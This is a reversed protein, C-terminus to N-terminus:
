QNQLIEPNILPVNRRINPYVREEISMPIPFGLSDPVKIAIEAMCYLVIGQAVLDLLTESEEAREHSKYLAEALKYAVGVGPLERLPHEPPLLSAARLVLDHRHPGDATFGNRQDRERTARLRKLYQRVLESEDAEGGLWAEWRYHLSIVPFTAGRLHEYLEDPCQDSYSANSDPGIAIMLDCTPTGCNDCGIAERESRPLAVWPFRPDLPEWLPLGETGPYAGPHAWFEASTTFGVKVPAPCMQLTEPERNECSWSLVAAAATIMTCFWSNRAASAEMGGPILLFRAM